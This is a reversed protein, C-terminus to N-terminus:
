RWGCVCDLRTGLRAGYFCLVQRGFDSSGQCGAGVLDCLVGRDGLVLAVAGDRGQALACIGPHAEGAVLVFDAVHGHAAVRLAQLPDLVSQGPLRRRRIRRRPQDVHQAAGRLVAAGVHGICRARRNRDPRMIHDYPRKITPPIRHRSRHPMSTSLDHKISRRVSMQM